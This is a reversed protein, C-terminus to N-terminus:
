RADLSASTSASASPVKSDLCFYKAYSSSRAAGRATAAALSESTMRNAASIADHLSTSQKPQKTAPTAHREPVVTWEAATGWRRGHAALWLWVREGVRGPNVGPGVADIVGAGDQHPIQFGDIPRPVAGSRAKHDTPNVGSAHVRVLVEGPGPEPRDIEEVHLVEAAPGTTRYLAAKM